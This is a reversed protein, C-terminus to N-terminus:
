CNLFGDPQTLPFRRPGFNMQAMTAELLPGVQQNTYRRVAQMSEMLIVGEATVQAEVRQQLVRSLVWGGVGSGLIFVLLLLLTFKPALKLRNLM